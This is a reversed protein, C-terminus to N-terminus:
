CAHRRPPARSGTRCGCPCPRSSSCSFGGHGVLGVVVCLELGDGLLHPGIRLHDIVVLVLFGGRDTGGPLNEVEHAFEAVQARGAPAPRDVLRPDGADRDPGGGGTGLRDGSQGRHSLDKRDLEDVVLGAFEAGHRAPLGAHREDQPHVAGAPASPARSLVGIDPRLAEKRIKGADLDHSGAVGVVGLAQEDRGDPIGVRDDVDVVRLDLGTPLGIDRVLGVLDRQALSHDTLAAALDREDGPRRCRDIGGSGHRFEGLRPDAHLEDIRPRQLREVRVRNHSRGALRSPQQDDLVAVVRSAEAGM